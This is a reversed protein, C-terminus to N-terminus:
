SLPPSISMVSITTKFPSSDGLEFGPRLLKCKVTNHDLPPQFSFVVRFHPILFINFSFLVYIFSLMSFGRRLKICDHVNCGNKTVARGLSRQISSLQYTDCSPSDMQLPSVGVCLLLIFVVIRGGAKPFNFFLRPVKTTYEWVYNVFNLSRVFCKKIFFIDRMKNEFPAGLKNNTQSISLSVYVWIPSM